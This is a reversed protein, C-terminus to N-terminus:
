LSAASSASFLNSLENESISGSGDSDLQGLLQALSSGSASPPPPATLAASAEKDISGDGVAKSAIPM